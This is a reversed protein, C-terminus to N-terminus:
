RIRLGLGDAEKMGGRPAEAGPFHDLGGPKTGGSGVGELNALGAMFSGIAYGVLANSTPSRFVRVSRRLSGSSLIPSDDRGSM